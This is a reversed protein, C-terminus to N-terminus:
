GTGATVEVRAGSVLVGADRVAGALRYTGAPLVFVNSKNATRGAFAATIPAEGRERGTALGNASISLVSPNGSRWQAENTVNRTSGDSQYATAAFQASEGPAVADPGAIELRTTTVPVDPNVGGGSPRTPADDCAGLLGALALALFCGTLLHFRQM